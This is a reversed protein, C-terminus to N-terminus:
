YYQKRTIFLYPVLHGNRLRDWSDHKWAHYTDKNQPQIDNAQRWQDGFRVRQKADHREVRYSEYM